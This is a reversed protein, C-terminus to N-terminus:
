RSSKNKMYNIKPDAISTWNILIHICLMYKESQFLLTTQNPNKKRLTRKKGGQRRNKYNQTFDLSLLHHSRSPRLKLAIACHRHFVCHNSNFLQHERPLVIKVSYFQHEKNKWVASITSQNEDLWPTNMSVEKEKGKKTLM